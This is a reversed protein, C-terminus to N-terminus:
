LSQSWWLLSLLCNLSWKCSCRSGRPLQLPQLPLPQPRAGATSGDWPVLMRAVQEHPDRETPHHHLVGALLQYLDQHMLFWISGICVRCTAQCELLGLNYWGPCFAGCDQTLVVLGRSSLLDLSHPRRGGERLWDRALSRLLNSWSLM